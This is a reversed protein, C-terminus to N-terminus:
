KESPHKNEYDEDSVVKIITTTVKNESTDYIDWNPKINHNENGNM